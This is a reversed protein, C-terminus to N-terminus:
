GRGKARHFLEAASFSSRVFPSSAVGAFGLARAAGAYEDFEDPPVYRAVDHHAPSPQLYQGLTLLDCATERLDTMVQALEDRTEGLGVMVGSKTVLSADIEKAERLLEVSRRYNAMPRVEPYLRPVTEVNHNLVDPRAAIFKRLAERTGQFDPVLIEVTLDKNREKLMTVVGAFHGAGGDPLDDRTVSTIVVHRLGMKEVAEAIRAPEDAEVPRPAGKSVACFTCNRTCVEGLILFTATRKAYCDGQNPCIASECITNLGLDGILDKMEMIVDAGHIRKKFWAPLRGKV